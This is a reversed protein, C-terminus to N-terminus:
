ISGWDVSGVTYDAEVIDVCLTQPAMM